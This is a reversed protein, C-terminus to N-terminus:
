RDGMWPDADNMLMRHELASRNEPPMENFRVGFGVGPFVYTVEGSFALWVDKEVEIKFSVSEGQNIQTLCDVFCGGLGLDSIRAERRGSSCELVTNLSVPIRNQKRQM